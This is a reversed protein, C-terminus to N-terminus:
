TASISINTACRSLPVIFFAAGHYNSLRPIRHTPTSPSEPTNRAHSFETGREHNSTLQLFAVSCKCSLTTTICKHWAM